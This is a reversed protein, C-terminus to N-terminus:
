DDAAEVASDNMSELRCGCPARPDGTPNHQLRGTVEALHDDFNAVSCCARQPADHDEGVAGIAVGLRQLLQQLPEPSFEDGIAQIQVVAIRIQFLQNVPQAFRMAATAELLGALGGCPVRLLALACRCLGFARGGVSSGTSRATTTWLSEHEAGMMAAKLLQSSSNCGFTQGSSLCVGTVVLIESGYFSRWM